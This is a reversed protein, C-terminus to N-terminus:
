LGIALAVIGAILYEPNWEGQKTHFILQPITLSTFVGIPVFKLGRWM